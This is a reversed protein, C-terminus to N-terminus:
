EKLYNPNIFKMTPLLKNEKIRKIILFALGFGLITTVLGLALVIGFITGKKILVFYNHFLNILILNTYHIKGGSYKSITKRSTLIQISNSLGNETIYVGQIIIM